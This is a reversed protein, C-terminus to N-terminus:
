YRIGCRFSWAWAAAAVLMLSTPIPAPAVIRLRNRSLELAALLADNLTLQGDIEDLNLRDGNSFEVTTLGAQAPYTREFGGDEIRGLAFGEAQFLVRGRLLLRCRQGPDCVHHLPLRRVPYSEGDIEIWPRESESVEAATCTDDPTVGLVDDLQWPINSRVEDGQQISFVQGGNHQDIFREVEDLHDEAHLTQVPLVVFEPAHRELDPVAIELSHQTSLGLHRIKTLPIDRRFSDHRADGIQLTGADFTWLGPSLRLSRVVLAGWCLVAVVSGMMLPGVFDRSLLGLMVTVGLGLLACPVAMAVIQLLKGTWWALAQPRGAGIVLRSGPVSESGPPSESQATSPGTVAGAM